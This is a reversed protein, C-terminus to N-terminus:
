VALKVETSPRSRTTRASRQRVITEQDRIGHELADMVLVALEDRDKDQVVGLMKVLRDFSSRAVALDEPSYAGIFKAIDMIREQFIPPLM